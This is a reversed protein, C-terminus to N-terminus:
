LHKVLILSVIKFNGEDLTHFQEMDPFRDRHADNQQTSTTPYQINDKVKFSSLPFQRKGQIFDLEGNNMHQVLVGFIFGFEGEPIYSFAAAEDFVRTCYIGEGFNRANAVPATVRLGGYNIIRDVNGKTTGHFALIHEKKFDIDNEIMKMAVIEYGRNSVNIAERTITALSRRMEVLKDTWSPLTEAPYHNQQASAIAYADFNKIQFGCSRKHQRTITGNFGDDVAVVGSCNGDKCIYRNDRERVYFNGVDNGSSNKMAYCQYLRGMSTFRHFFIPAM